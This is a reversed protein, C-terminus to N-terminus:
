VDESKSMRGLALLLIIAPPLGAAMAQPMAGSLGAAGMMQMLFYVAFCCIIGLGFQRAFSFRRRERTHAFVAGLATMSMLNLPLFLLSLFQATHQATPLGM